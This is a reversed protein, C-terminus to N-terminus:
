GPSDGAEAGQHGLERNRSGGASRGSGTRGCFKYSGRKVFERAFEDRFMHVSEARIRAIEAPGVKPHNEAWDEAFSISPPELIVRQYQTFTADPARYVGGVSRSVVRVLGDATTEDPPPDAACGSALSAALGLAILFKSAHWPM